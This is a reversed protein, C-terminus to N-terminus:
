KKINTFKDVKKINNSNFNSSLGVKATGSSKDRKVNLNSSNSSNDITKIKKKKKIKNNKDVKDVKESKELKENKNVVKKV